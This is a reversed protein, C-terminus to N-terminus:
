PPQKWSAIDQCSNRARRLRGTDGRLKMVPNDVFSAVWKVGAIDRDGGLYGPLANIRGSVSEEEQTGKRLVVKHPVICEGRHRMVLVEEVDAMAKRMDLGGSEIVNEQSLFIFSSEAM